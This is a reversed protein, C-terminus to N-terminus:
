RPDAGCVQKTPKREAEDLGLGSEKEADELSFSSLGLTAREWVDLAAAYVMAFKSVM